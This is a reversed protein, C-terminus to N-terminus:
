GLNEAAAVSGQGRVGDQVVRVIMDQSDSQKANLAQCVSTKMSVRNGVSLLKDHVQFFPCFEM